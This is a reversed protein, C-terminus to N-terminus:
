RMRDATKLIGEQWLGTLIEEYEKFSRAKKIKKAYYEPESFIGTMYHWFEKMRYLVTKEGELVEQYGEYVRDHFERYVKIGEPKRGKIEDAFAPNTLLGRGLMITKLAPFEQMLKGYDEETFIDGNYCLEKQSQEYAEKFIEWNPKNNYLDAQVRPHIILEKLPYREFIESLEEWEEPSTKGIRTKISIKVQSKQFIEDLFRDLEYTKALFGAGKNKSVVTGSPCGLNLNVEDYGYEKMLHAAWIFHAARNTLIQPVVYIGENHEPLIDNKEKSSLVQNQNPSLFPTFYKDVGSFLAHHANRYIYGTIGEM